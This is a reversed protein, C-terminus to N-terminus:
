GCCLLCACRGARCFPRRPARSVAGGYHKGGAAPSLWPAGQPWQCYKRLPSAPAPAPLLQKHLLLSGHPLALLAPASLLLGAAM